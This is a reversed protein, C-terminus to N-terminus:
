RLELIGLKTSMFLKSTGSRLSDTIQSTLASVVFGFLGIGIYVIAVVKLLGVIGMSTLSSGLNVIMLM